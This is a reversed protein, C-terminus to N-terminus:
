VDDGHEDGAKLVAPFTVCRIIMHSGDSETDSVDEMIREDLSLGAPGHSDPLVCTYVARQLGFLKSLSIAHEVIKGLSTRQHETLETKTLFSLVSIIDHILKGIRKGTAADIADKVDGEVKQLFQFTQSRWENYPATPALM